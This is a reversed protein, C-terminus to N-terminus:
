KADLENRKKILQGKKLYVSLAFSTPANHFWEDLRLLRTSHDLRSFADAPMLVTVCIVANIM